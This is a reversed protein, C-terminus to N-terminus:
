LIQQMVSEVKNKPIFIYNLDKYNPDGEIREKEVLGESSLLFYKYNLDDLITHLYKETQGKLVECIIIPEDRKLISKAGELVTHETAETDIKLLDVKSIDNLKLFSDITIAPVSIIKEAERFDKLTSASTPLNGSPVYLEIEGDYNTAAIPSIPINQLKNLDINKNFYSLISPVPEFAYVKRDSSDIAAILSYLGTNAGIDLFTHSATLLKIFIPITGSEFKDIGEWYLARAIVDNETTKLYLKKSNSLKFDVIGTVPMIKLYKEPIASYISNLKLIKRILINVLDISIISKLFRKVVFNIKM